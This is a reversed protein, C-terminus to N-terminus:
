LTRHAFGRRTRDSVSAQPLSGPRVRVAIAGRRVLKLLQNDVNM